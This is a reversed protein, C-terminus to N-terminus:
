GESDFKNKAIANLVATRCWESKNHTISELYEIDEENLMVGVMQKPKPKAKKSFKSESQM